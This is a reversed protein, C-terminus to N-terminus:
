VSDNRAAASCEVRQGKSRHVLHGSLSQIIVQMCSLYDLDDWFPEPARQRQGAWSSLSGDGFRPHLKAFNQRYHDALEAELLADQCLAARQPAPHALLVRALAVVDGHTLRQM